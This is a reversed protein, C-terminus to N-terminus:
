RLNVAGLTFRRRGDPIFEPVTCRGLGDSDLTIPRCLAPVRDGAV